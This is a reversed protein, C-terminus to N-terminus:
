LSSRSPPIFGVLYLIVLWRSAIMTLAEPKVQICGRINLLNAACFISWARKICLGCGGEYTICMAIFTGGSDPPLSHISYLCNDLGEKGTYRKSLPDPERSQHGTGQALTYQAMSIFRTKYRHNLLGINYAPMSPDVVAILWQCSCPRCQSLQSIISQNEWSLLITHSSMIYITITLSPDHIHNSQPLRPTLKNNAMLCFVQVQEPLQVQVDELFEITM